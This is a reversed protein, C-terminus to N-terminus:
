QVNVTVADSSTLGTPVTVNAALGFIRISYAGTPTVAPVIFACTTSTATFASGCFGSSFLIGGGLGGFGNVPDAGVGQPNTFNKGAGSYELAYVTVRSDPILSWSVTITTGKAVISNNSPATIVSRTLPQVTAIALKSRATPTDTGSFVCSIDGTPAGGGITLRIGSFVVTSAVSSVSTTTATFAGAGTAGGVSVSGLNGATVTATPTAAFTLGQGAPDLTCIITGGAGGVQLAGAFNEVLTVTAATQNQVGIFVPPKSDATNTTADRVNAVQITGATAGANGGITLNLAGTAVSSATNFTLGDIRLVGASTSTGTLINISISGGRPTATITAVSATLGTSAAVTITGPITQFSVGSPATLSVTKNAGLVAPGSETILLTVASAFALDGGSTINPASGIISAITGGTAATAITLLTPSVTSTGSLTLQLAGAAVTTDLSLRINTLDLTGINTGTTTTGSQITLISSTTGPTTITLTGAAVMGVAPLNTFTAGAPLTIVIQKGSGFAGAISETFRINTALQNSFGIVVTRTTAESLTLNVAGAVATANAVSQSPVFRGTCSTCTTTGVTASLTAAATGSAITYSMSLRLITAGTSAAGSFAVTFTSATSASTVTIGLGPATGATTSTVTGSLTAGTPLTITYTEGVQFGGAVTETFVIDGAAGSGGTRINPTGGATLVVAASTANAIQLSAKNTVSAISGATDSLLVNVAGSQVGTSTNVSFAIRVDDVTAGGTGGRNITVIFSTLGSNTGGALGATCVSSGCSTTTGTVGGANTVSVQPNCTTGGVSRCADTALTVGAPLEVTLITTLNVGGALTGGAGTPESIRITGVSAAAGGIVVNPLSLTSNTTLQKTFAADADRVGSTVLFLAALLAIPIWVKSSRLTMTQSRERDTHDKESNGGMWGCLALSGSDQAGRMVEEHSGM